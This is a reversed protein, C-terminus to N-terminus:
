AALRERLLDIRDYGWFLEDDVIFTPVGFVGRQKAEEQIVDHRQRGEGVLFGAFGDADAGAEALCATVAAVDDVELEHQWFRPFLLENYARLVGADKAYLLGIQAPSSDYVKRPGRVTLGRKNAWRRADMYAYKVKRWQAESRSEVAGLFSPIDLTFPLWDVEVGFADELEYAPAMALYAFPSKYDTYLTVVPKPM